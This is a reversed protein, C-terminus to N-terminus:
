TRAHCLSAAARFLRHEQFRLGTLQVGLPLGNLMLLPLNMAPVGLFTWLTCLAPNGTTHLGLPAPGTSSPTLVADYPAVLAELQCYLRERERLAGAYDVASIASEITSGREPTRKRPRLLPWPELRNRCVHHDPSSRDRSRVSRSPCARRLGTWAGCCFGRLSKNHQRRCFAM